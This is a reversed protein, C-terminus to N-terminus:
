QEAVRVQLDVLPETSSLDHLQRLREMQNLSASM